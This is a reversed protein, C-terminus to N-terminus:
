GPDGALAMVARWQEDNVPVVSLRPIRLLDWGEWPNKEKDSKRNAASEKIQKLTVPKTLARLPKLDVVFIRTGPHDPHIYPDSAVEALGVIRREKGTHYILVREGSRMSALNKQALAGKVGDWLTKGESLLDQWSYTEPETKLLWGGV